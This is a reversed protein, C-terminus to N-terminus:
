SSNATKIGEKNKTMVGTKIVFIIIRVTQM